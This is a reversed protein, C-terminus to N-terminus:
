EAPARATALAPARARSKRPRTPKVAPTSGSAPQEGTQREILRRYSDVVILRRSGVHISELIGADLMEYTKSRGIGSLETFRRITTTIPLGQAEM